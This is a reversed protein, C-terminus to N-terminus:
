LLSEQLHGLTKGFYGEMAAILDEFNSQLRKEEAVTEADSEDAEQHFVPSFFLKVTVILENRFSPEYPCLFSSLM